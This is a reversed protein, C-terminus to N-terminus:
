AARPSLAHWSLWGDDNAPREASRDLLQALDAPGRKAAARAVRRLESRALGIDALSRDDLQALEVYVRQECGHVELRHRLVDFLSM